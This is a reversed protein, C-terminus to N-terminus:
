RPLERADWRSGARPQAMASGISAKHTVEAMRRVLEKKQSSTFAVSRENRRPLHVRLALSFDGSSSPRRHQGVGKYSAHTRRSGKM